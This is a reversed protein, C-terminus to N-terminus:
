CSEENVRLFEVLFKDMLESVSSLIFNARSGGHTGTISSDWTPASFNLGSLPDYVIKNYELIIAFAKGVVNVNIYLYPFPDSDYLRASRLRSEAAAQISEQTLGIDSADSPLDEVLLYMPQCDAFLQFRAVGESSMGQGAADSVFFFLALAVSTLSISMGMKQKVRKTM